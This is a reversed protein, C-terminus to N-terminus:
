WRNRDPNGVPRYIRYVPVSLHESLETVLSHHIAENHSKLILRRISGKGLGKDDCIPHSSGVGCYALSVLPM